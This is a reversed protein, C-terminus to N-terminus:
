KEFKEIYEEDPMLEVRYYQQRYEWALERALFEKLGRYIMPHNGFLYVIVTM